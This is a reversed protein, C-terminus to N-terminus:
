PVPTVAALPALQQPAKWDSWALICRALSTSQYHVTARLSRFGGADGTYTGNATATLSIVSGGQKSLYLTSWTAGDLSGQVQIGVTGTIGTLVMVFGGRNANAITLSTTSATFSTPGAMDIGAQLQGAAAGLALSLILILKKM